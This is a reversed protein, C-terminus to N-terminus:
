KRHVCKPYQTSTATIRLRHQIRNTHNSTIIRFPGYITTTKSLRNVTQALEVSIAKTQQM